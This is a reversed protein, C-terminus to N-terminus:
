DEWDLGLPTNDNPLVASTWTAVSVSPSVLRVSADGMGVLTGGSGHGHARWWQCEEGSPNVQPPDFVLYKPDGSFKNNIRAFVPWYHDDASHGWGNGFTDIDNPVGAPGCSKRKEAIFVTASLGDRIAGTKHAGAGANWDWYPYGPRGFVQWNAAYSCLAVDVPNRWMWSASFGNVVVGDAPGTSDNPAMLVPLPVSMAAQTSNVPQLGGVPWQAVSTQLRGEEFYPLLCFFFTGEAPTYGGTYAPRTWSFTVAPPLVKKLDYGNYVAVMIQKINNQSQTRGAMERAKQVAVGVLGLLIALVAIVLLAQILSFGARPRARFPKSGNTGPRGPAHDISTRSNM